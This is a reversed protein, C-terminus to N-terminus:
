EKVEEGPTVLVSDVPLHDVPDGHALNERRLDDPSEPPKRGGPGLANWNRAPASHRFGPRLLLITEIEARIPEPFIVERWKGGSGCSPCIFVPDTPEAVVSSHCSDCNVIWRGGEIFAIVSGETEEDPPFQGLGSRVRYLLLHDRYGLEPHDRNRDTNHSVILDPLTHESENTVIVPM